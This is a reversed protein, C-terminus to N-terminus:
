ILLTTNYVDFTGNILLFVYFWNNIIWENASCYDKRPDVSSKIYNSGVLHSKLHNQGNLGTEGEYCTCIGKKHYM